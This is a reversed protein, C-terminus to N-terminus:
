YHTPQVYNDWNIKVCINAPFIEIQSNWKLFINPWKKTGLHQHGTEGGVREYHIVLKLRNLLVSTKYYFLYFFCLLIVNSITHPNHVCHLIHKWALSSTLTIKPIIVSFQYQIISSSFLSILISSIVCCFIHLWLLTITKNFRKWNIRSGTRAPVNWFCNIYSGFSSFTM